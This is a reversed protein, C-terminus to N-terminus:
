KEKQGKEGKEGHGGGKPPKRPGKGEQTAESGTQADQRGGGPPLGASASGAGGGNGGGLNKKATHYAEREKIRGMLISIWRPDLLRTQRSEFTDLVRPRNFAGFPPSPELAIESALLWSGGDVAAQDLSAIGLLAMAKALERVM